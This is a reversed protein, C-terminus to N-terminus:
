SYPSPEDEMVEFLHYRGVTGLYVFGTDPYEEDSRRLAFFRAEFMTESVSQEVVIASLNEDGTVGKIIAGQPLVIEITPSYDWPTMVPYNHIMKM